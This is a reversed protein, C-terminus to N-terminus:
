SGNADRARPGAVEARWTLARREFVELGFDVLARLVESRTVDDPGVNRPSVESAVYDRLKDARESTGRDYRAAIYERSRGM